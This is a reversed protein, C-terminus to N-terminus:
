GEQKPAGHAIRRLIVLIQKQYIWLIVVMLIMLGSFALAEPWDGQILVNGIACHLFINLFSGVWVATAFEPVTIDMKAAVIPIIGNPVMPIMNALVVTYRPPTDLSLVKDISKRFLGQVPFWEELKKGAKRWLVMYATMAATFADHCMAFGALTGYVIGAAVQIPTGSIVVTWVQIAQLLMTAIVGKRSNSARLVETFEDLNGHEIAPILELITELFAYYFLVLALTIIGLILLIRLWKRDKM